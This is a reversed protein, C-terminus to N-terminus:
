LEPVVVAEVVVMLLETLQDTAVLLVKRLLGLEVWMRCHVVVVLDVPHVLEAQHAVVVVAVLPQRRFLFPTLDM